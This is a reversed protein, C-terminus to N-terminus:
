VYKIYTGILYEPISMSYIRPMLWNTKRIKLDIEILPFTGPVQFFLYHFM